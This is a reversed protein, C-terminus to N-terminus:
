STVLRRFGSPHFVIPDIAADPDDSCHLEDIRGTGTDVCIAVVASPVHAFARRLVASDTALAGMAAEGTPVDLRVWATAASFAYGSMATLLHGM